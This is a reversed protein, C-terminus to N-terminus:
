HAICGHVSPVQATDLVSAPWGSSILGNTGVLAGTVANGILAYNEIALHNPHFM